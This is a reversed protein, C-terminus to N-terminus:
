EVLVLKFLKHRREIIELFCDWAEVAAETSLEKPDILRASMILAGSFSWRFMVGSTRNHQALASRNTVGDRVAFGAFRRM